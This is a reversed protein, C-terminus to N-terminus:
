GFIGPLAMVTRFWAEGMFREMKIRRIDLDDWDSFRRYGGYYSFAFQVGARQLCRRTEVTFARRSGVPYSFYRMPEGLEEALRQGCGDIEAWQQDAALEALIPHTVSHGGIRMGEARLTRVMDWTMWVDDDYGHTPRATGTAAALDDLFPVGDGAPLAKYSRLAATIARDRDPGDFLLGEPFRACRDIGPRASTRIMWAVEDWWTMDRPNDLFATSVFFTASLGLRKLIPFAVTFNDLYGDDFTVIVYRGRGRRRADDLDAPTIVDFNAKIWQMQRVFFDVDASWAGRDLPSRADYGIRHYNLCVVGQWPPSLELLHRIGSLSLARIALARKM